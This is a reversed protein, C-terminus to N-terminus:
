KSWTGRALWRRLPDPEFFILHSIIFHFFLVYFYAEFM